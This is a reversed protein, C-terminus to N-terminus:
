IYLICIVSYQMVHKSIRPFFNGKPKSKTLTNSLRPSGSIETMPSSAGDVHNKRQRVHRGGDDMRQPFILAPPEQSNEQQTIKWIPLDNTRSSFSTENFKLDGPQGQTSYEREKLSVNEGEFDDIQTDFSRMVVIEEDTIDFGTSGHREVSVPTNVHAAQSADMKEISEHFDIEDGPLADHKRSDSIVSSV